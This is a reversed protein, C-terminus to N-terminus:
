CGSMEVHEDFACDEPSADDYYFESEKDTYKHFSEDACTEAFESVYGLDIFEAIFRKTWEKKTMM